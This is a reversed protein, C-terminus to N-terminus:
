TGGQGAGNASSSATAPPPTLSAAHAATTRDQEAEHAIQAHDHAADFISQIRAFENQLISEAQDRQLSAQAVVLKTQEQMATQKLRIEGDIMKAAKEQQLQAIVAQMQQAQQQLQGIAAKAQAPVDEGSEGAFQPPTLRQAIQDGIPGLNRLKVLLDGILPFVGQVQALTDAFDAAEERQSEFSPGTTITVDHDGAFQKNKPNARDGIRAVYHTGDERRAPIDRPTDHIKDFLDDLQRGVFVLSRDFNDIFHFSGQAREGSIRKLAIGSKENARQAAVPLPSIGMAKMISRSAAEKAVEYQQFNPVFPVREPKISGPAFGEPVDYEVWARGAGDIAEEWAASHQAFMGTPGMFPVKPTKASEILEQAAFYNL